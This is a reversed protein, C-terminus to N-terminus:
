VIALAQPSRQKKFEFFREAMFQGTSTAPREVLETKEM